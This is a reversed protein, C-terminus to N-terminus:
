CWVLKRAYYAAVSKAVLFKEHEYGPWAKFMPALWDRCKTDSLDNQAYQLLTSINMLARYGAKTLRHFQLGGNEHDFEILGNSLLDREAFRSTVWSARRKHDHDQLMIVLSFMTVPNLEM